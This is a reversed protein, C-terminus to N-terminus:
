SCPFGPYTVDPKLAVTVGPGVLGQGLVALMLLGDLSGILRASLGGVIGLLSLVVIVACM